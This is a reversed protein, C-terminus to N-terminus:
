CTQRNPPCVFLKYDKATWRVPYQAIYFCVRITLTNERVKLGTYLTCLFYIYHIHVSYNKRTSLITMENSYLSSELARVAFPVSPLSGVYSIMEIGLHDQMSLLSFIFHYNKNSPDLISSTNFHRYWCHLCVVEM